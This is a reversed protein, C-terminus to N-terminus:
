RQLLLRLASCSIDRTGRQGCTVFLFSVDRAGRQGCSVVHIVDCVVSAVRLWM